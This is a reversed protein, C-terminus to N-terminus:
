GGGVEREGRACAGEVIAAAVGHARVPDAQRVREDFVVVQGLHELYFFCHSLPPHPTRLSPPQPGRRGPPPCPPTGGRKKKKEKEGAGGCM